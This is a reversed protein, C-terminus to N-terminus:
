VFGTGRRTLVNRDARRGRGMIDYFAMAMFQGFMM